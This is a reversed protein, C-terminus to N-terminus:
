LLLQRRVCFVTDSFLAGDLYLTGPSAWGPLEPSPIPGPAAAGSAPSGSSLSGAALSRVCPRSDKYSTIYLLIFFVRKDPIFAPSYGRSHFFGDFRTSFAHINVSFTPTGRNKWLSTRPPPRFLPPFLGTGGVKGWTPSFDTSSSLAPPAPALSFTLTFLNPHNEGQPLFDM